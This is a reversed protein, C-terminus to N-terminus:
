RHIQARYSNLFHKMLFFEVNGIYLLDHRIKSFSQIVDKAPFVHDVTNHVSTTSGCLRRYLRSGPDKTVWFLGSDELPGDGCPGQKHTAAHSANKIGLKIIDKFSVSFIREGDMSLHCHFSWTHTYTLILDLYRISWKDM